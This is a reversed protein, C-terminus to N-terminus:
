DLQKTYGLLVFGDPYVRDQSREYGLSAYMERAARMLTTTHLTMRTRGADRAREECAAMLRRGVGAGRADPHVGLMRIHAEDPALPGAEGDTRGELELTASGIIRDGNVAVLITTRPARGAVDAIEELYARLEADAESFFERYADATVVGTEAYEEPRAQRIEVDM